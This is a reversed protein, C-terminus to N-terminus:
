NSSNLSFLLQVGSSLSYKREAFYTSYWIYYSPTIDFRMSAFFSVIVKNSIQINLQPSFYAGIIVNRSDTQLGSYEYFSHYSLLVKGYLGVVPEFSYKGSGIKYSM